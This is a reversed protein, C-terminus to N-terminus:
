IEADSTGLTKATVWRTVWLVGAVRFKQWNSSRPRLGGKHTRSKAM